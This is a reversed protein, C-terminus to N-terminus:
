EQLIVGLCGQWLPMGMLIPVGEPSEKKLLRSAYVAPYINWFRILAIKVLMVVWTLTRYEDLINTVSRYLRHQNGGSLAQYSAPKAQKRCM